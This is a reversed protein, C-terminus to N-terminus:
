LLIKKNKFIRLLAGSTILVPASLFILCSASLEMFNSPLRTKFFLIYISLSLFLFSFFISGLCGIKIGKKFFSIITSLIALPGILCGLLLFIIVNIIPETEAMLAVGMYLLMLFLLLVIGVIMLIIGITKRKILNSISFLKGWKERSM